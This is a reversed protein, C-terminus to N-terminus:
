FYQAIYRIAIALVIVGLVAKIGKEPVYKQLRAGSYMGLLGGLGFLIGLGWDPPAVAGNIQVLSYFLVGSLSSIFTGFLVAGAIAHVPLRFLTVCVPAIIAGGGIGYAGGIIGVFLALLLMMPTQFHYRRNRYEFGAQAWALRVDRVRDGLPVTEVASPLRQRLVDWLLRIAVFSLVIGVFLKFTAADLLYTTRLYYGILVGPIIGIAILLALPWVLRRERGYRYIGGPTGTVNYLLNTASVSPTVFGLVSVQFPLLVFAGSIGAMSTFFSIAFAVLPPIFFYTSIGAIPFDIV